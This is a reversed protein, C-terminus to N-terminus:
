VRLVFLTTTCVRRRVLPIWPLLDYAVSGSLRPFPAEYTIEEVSLRMEKAINLIEDRRLAFIHGDGDPQFQGAEFTKLQDEQFDSFRPLRNRLYDGNPTSLILVARKNAFNAMKRLFEDPHAVHEIVETALVCDYKNSPNMELINGPAFGMLEDTMKLRVYGARSGLIDNWTVKYGMRALTLAFNGEAAGIDLVSAPPDCYKAVLDITRHFRRQYHRWAQFAEQDTRRPFSTSELFTVLSDGRFFQMADYNYLTKWDSPWDAEPEPLKM